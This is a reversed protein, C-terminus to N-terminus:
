GQLQWNKNASSAAVPRVPLLNHTHLPGTHTGTRLWAQLAAAGARFGPLHPVDQGQQQTSLGPSAEERSPYDGPRM